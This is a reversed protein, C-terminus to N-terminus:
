ILNEKELSLIISSMRDRDFGKSIREKPLDQPHVWFMFPWFDAMNQTTYIFYNWSQLSRALVPSFIAEVAIRPSSRSNQHPHPRSPKLPSPQNPHFPDVPCLVLSITATMEALLVRSYFQSYAHEVTTRLRVVDIILDDGADSVVSAVLDPIEVLM